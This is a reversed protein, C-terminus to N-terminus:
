WTRRDLKQHPAIGLRLGPVARLALDGAIAIHQLENVLPVLVYLQRGVDHQLQM